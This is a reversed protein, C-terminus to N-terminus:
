RFMDYERLEELFKKEEQNLDNPVKINLEVLFDGIGGYGLNPIGNQSFKILTGSVTGPSIVAKVTGGSPLEVDINTGLVADIFTIERNSILDIGRRTFRDDPIERIKVYLDGSVGNGKGENGRGQVVFQMGDSSGAPINIDIIDDDSRVGKGICTFCYELITKGSGNCVHCPKITNVHVFGRMQTALLQGSGNCTGCTQLSKGDLAGTGSCPSCKRDRKLKIKKTVGNLVDNLTIRLTINLDSGKPDRPPQSQQYANYHNAFPDNFGSGFGNFGGGFFSDKFNRKKDYQKRKEPDGIHDYAESIKKFKEEAGKEKNRDPHYKKAMTRYARKITEQDSNDQVGLIEYYNEM